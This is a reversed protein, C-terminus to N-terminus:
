VEEQAGALGDLLGLSGSVKGAGQAWQPQLLDGLVTATEMEWVCKGDLKKLLARAPSCPLQM